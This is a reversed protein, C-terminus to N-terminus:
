AVTAADDYRVGEDAAAHAAATELSILWRTACALRPTLQYPAPQPENTVSRASAARGAGTSTHYEARTTTLEGRLVQKCLSPRDYPLHAEAGIMTVPGAYGDRRVGEVVGLGAIGAGVVVLGRRTGTM